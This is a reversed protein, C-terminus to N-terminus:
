TLHYYTTNIKYKGMSCQSVLTTSRYHPKRKNQKTQKGELKMQDESCNVIKNSASSSASVSSGGSSSSSESIISNPRQSSKGDPLTGAFSNRM